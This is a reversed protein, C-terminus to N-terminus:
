LIYSTRLSRFLLYHFEQLSSFSTSSTFSFFFSNIKSQKLYLKFVFSALGDLFLQVFFSSPISQSTYSRTNSTLTLADTDSDIDYLNILSVKKIESQLLCYLYVVPNFASGIPTHIGLM